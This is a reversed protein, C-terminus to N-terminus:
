GDISLCSSPVLNKWQSWLLLFLKLMGEAPTWPYDEHHVGLSVLVGGPRVLDFALRLAPQLGVLEVVIDAGRGATAGKVTSEIEDADSSSNM